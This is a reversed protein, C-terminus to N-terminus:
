EAPYLSAMRESRYFTQSANMTFVVVPPEEHTVEVIRSAGGFTIIVNGTAPGIDVDGTAPAFITQSADYAWVQRVEKQAPDVVYEVARSYNSPPKPAPPSVRFNGNDFVMIHGNSLIHPAHQHFPWLFPTGVPTLLYPTFAAAWNDPTGLIWQLDGAADLKFLADQHRLSVLYGGDSPDPFAANGHSWDIAGAPTYFPSWFMGFSGYGIRYPDARDLMPFRHVINGDPTFVVVQDGVVAQPSSQPTPDTESTPYGAYTRRETALALFNGDPLLNFEHHFSDVAVGISGAVSITNAAHWHRRVTGFVDIEEATVHDSFELIITGTSLMRVDEMGGSLNVFWVV